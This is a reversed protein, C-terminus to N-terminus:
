GKVGDTAARCTEQLRHWRVARTVRGYMLIDFVRIQAPRSRFPARSAVSHPAVTIDSCTAVSYSVCSPTPAATRNHIRCAKQPRWPWSVKRWKSCSRMDRRHTDQPCSDGPHSSSEALDWDHCTACSGCRESVWRTPARRAAYRM